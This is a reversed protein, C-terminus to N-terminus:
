NPNTYQYHNVCVQWTCNGWQRAYCAPAHLLCLAYKFWSMGEIFWAVCDHITTFNCPVNPNYVPGPGGGLSGAMRGAETEGGLSKGDVINNTYLVQGESEIILVGSFKEPSHQLVEYMNEEPNSAELRISAEGILTNTKPNILQVTRKLKSKQSYVDRAIILTGDEAEITVDENRPIVFDPGQAIGIFSICCSLLLYFFCKKM